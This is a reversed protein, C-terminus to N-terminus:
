KNQTQKIILYIAFGCGSLAGIILFWPKSTHLYMDLLYGGGCGVLMAALIEFGLTTYKLYDKM